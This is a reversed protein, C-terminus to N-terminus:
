ILEIVKQNAEDLRDDNIEKIYTLTTQTNTHGLAKSIVPLDVNQSFAISAWTHRAVYSTLNSTIGARAALQKLARNYRNLVHLYQSYAKGQDPTKIVPFVFDSGDSKYRNIIDLMCPELHITVKKGTKHRYYTIYGDSIQSKRLFSIDVFPMGLAFFSFLFLDRVLCSFSGEKLELGRLRIIDDSTVARKSTPMNGTFVKDFLGSLDIGTELGIRCFLSRLSRMYCSITNPNVFQERLWREYYLFLEENVTGRNPTDSLFRTFSRLATWYNNITSPSCGQINDVLERAAKVLHTALMNGNGFGQESTGEQHIHIHM